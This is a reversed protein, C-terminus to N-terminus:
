AQLFYQIIRVEDCLTYTSFREVFTNSIEEAKKESTERQNVIPYRCVVLEDM